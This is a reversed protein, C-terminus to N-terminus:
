RSAGGAAAKELLAHLVRENYDFLIAGTGYATRDPPIPYYKEFNGCAYQYFDVCPDATKDIFRQELGQLRDRNNSDGNPTQGFTMSTVTLVLVVLWGTRITMLSITRTSLFRSALTVAFTM